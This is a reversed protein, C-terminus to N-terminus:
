AHTVQLYYNNATVTSPHLTFEVWGNAVPDTNVVRGISIDNMSGADVASASAVYVADGPAMNATSLAAFVGNLAVPILTSVAGSALAIGLIGTTCNDAATTLLGTSVTYVVPDGEVIATSANVKLNAIITNGSIPRFGGM